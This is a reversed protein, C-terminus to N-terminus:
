PGLCGDVLDNIQSNITGCPIFFPLNTCQINLVQAAPDYNWTITIGRQSATGSNGSLIIGTAEEAKQVICAFQEHTVGSFTQADCAM